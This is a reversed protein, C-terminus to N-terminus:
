EELVVFYRKCEVTDETITFEDNFTNENLNIGYSNNVCIKVEKYNSKM